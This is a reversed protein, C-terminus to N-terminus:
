PKHGLCIWTDEESRHRRWYNNQSTRRSHHSCLQGKLLSDEHHELQKEDRASITWLGVGGVRKFVSMRGGFPPRPSRRWPGLQGRRAIAARPHRLTDTSLRQK